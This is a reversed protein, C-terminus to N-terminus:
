AKIQQSEIKTLWDSGVLKTMENDLRQTDAVKGINELTKRQAAALHLFITEAQIDPNIRAATEIANWYCEKARNAQGIKTHCFGAMRWSEMEQFILQENERAVPVAAEYTKAAAEHNNLSIQAAGVFHHCQVFLQTGLIHKGVFLREAVALAKQYSQLAEKQHLKYPLLFNGVSALVTVELHQWDPQSQVLSLAKESLTRMKDFAKNSAAQAMDLFLLRFQVAPDKPDGSSALQRMAGPMDLNANISVIRKGGLKRLHNLSCQEETLWFLLRTQPIQTQVALLSVMWEEWAGFNLVAQPTLVAVIYHLGKLERAARDLTKLFAAHDDSCRVPKPFDMVYGKERLDSTHNDIWDNVEDLISQSYQKADRFPSQLPIMFDPFIGVESQEYKVFADMMKTEDDRIVWHCIMASKEDRFTQYQAQLMELRQTIANQEM